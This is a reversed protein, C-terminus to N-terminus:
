KWGARDMIKLAEANNKGYVAANLPDEKFTGWSVLVPATPAGAVIPYEFNKETFMRQADPSILYELFKEASQKNPASKTIGAGSINVHTGRDGQNPFIVGLKDAIAKDEPKTSSAIRAFYYTNSVAVDGEGAAVGKIQDTDGGQPKRAMNAVVGKAWAETKAEGNAALLAGVLSQNYVSNSARVLVRGKWAPEALTEYRPLDAPKVTAKNYVIIRARKSIGFWHGEPERLHAPIAAELAKNRTPQLLGAEQARWLRGADVTILVDAPSNAGETKMREILEDEKGEIVNVKIGTQQTFTDYLAKDVDYHRSSYVNVEAASAGVSALLTATFAATLAARTGIHM